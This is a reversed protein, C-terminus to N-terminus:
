QIGTPRSPALASGSSSDPLSSPSDSVAPVESPQPTSPMVQQHQNRLNPNRLIREDKSPRGRRRKPLPNKGPSSEVHINSGGSQSPEAISAPIPVTEQVVLSPTPFTATIPISEQDVSFEPSPEPECLKPSPLVNQDVLNMPVSDSKQVYTTTPLTYLRLFRRNRNTVRGSGDVKVRYQNYGINELM